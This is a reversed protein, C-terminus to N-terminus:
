SERTLWLTVPAGNDTGPWPSGPEPSQKTVMLGQGKLSPMLGKQALIGVAQRLSLGVLNPVTGERVPGAKGPTPVPSAEGQTQSALQVQPQVTTDGAQVVSLAKPANQGPAPGPSPTPAPALTPAQPRLEALKVTEPMKGQYAMTKLAVERVAPAAVIGGYHCPEPEDVMVMILYEPNVAPIFGVFSALYKEVYGGHKGAKQATGTKGGTDLGAIRAKVGTGKEEEVVERMMQQVTAAIKPDFVRHEAPTAFRESSPDLVLKLPTYVGGNAIVHYAQALQLPTVGVGQGFSATALDIKAWQHAPRLLGKAEGPLPLGTREGFGVREFYTHLRGAGLLLGIKAAGINSSYRMIRDVPLTDYPHTDRITTDAYNWRGNECFFQTDPKVVNEQLASAILIPKMTSGPEVVDLAVHNRWLEPKKRDFANPNFFPYNAWALIEASPVHVVLCVGSKGHNEVVAKALAEEAFYQIQADITLEVDGGNTVVECGQDDLYLKRGSADRQVTFVAKKGALRGQFAQELGEQGEDDQGVFGLLQGALHKNPYSRGYEGVLYVGPIAAEKIKAAPKDGIKHEVFVYHENSTLRKAVDKVPEDLIKALTAAAAPIDRMENPRAYVGVFEVSKALVLGSRDVIEGRRGCEMESSEHQRLAMQALEPGRVIQLFGARAWLAVWVLAFFSGVILLRMRSYDRIQQSNPRAM